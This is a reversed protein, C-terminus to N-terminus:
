DVPTMGTLVVKGDEQTYNLLVRGEPLEFDCGDDKVLTAIFTVQEGAHFTDIEEIHVGEPLDLIHELIERSFAAKTAVM